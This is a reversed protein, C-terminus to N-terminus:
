LIPSVKGTWAQVNSLASYQLEQYSPACNNEHVMTIEICVKQTTKELSCLM